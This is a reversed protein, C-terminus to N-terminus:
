DTVIKIRGFRRSNPTVPTQDRVTVEEWTENLSTVTTEIGGEQWADSDLGSQWQAQYLIDPHTEGKRRYYTLSLYRQDAVDVFQHRPLLPGGAESITSATKPSGGFAYELLNAVGDGDPDASPGAVAEDMVEANTFHSARWSAHTGVGFIFFSNPSEPTPSTRNAGRFGQVSVSVRWVGKRTFGWNTHSHDGARMFFKDAEDIGDSTAMWLIISGDSYNSYLCVHGGEPGEVDKLRFTLWKQSGLSAVRPDTETYAAFLSSQTNNFGAWTYGNDTQPIFWIPQGAAIGMFDWVSEEPRLLM